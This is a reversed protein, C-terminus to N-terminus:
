CNLFSFCVVEGDLPGTWEYHVSGYTLNILNKHEAFRLHYQDMEYYSLADPQNLWLLLTASFAAFLSLWVSRRKSQTSEHFLFLCAVKHPSIM